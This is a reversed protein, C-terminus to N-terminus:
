LLIIVYVFKKQNTLLYMSNEIMQPVQVPEPYNVLYCPSPEKTIAGYYCFDGTIKTRTLPNHLDIVQERSQTTSNQNGTM